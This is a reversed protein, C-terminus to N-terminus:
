AAQGEKSAWRFTSADRWMRHLIVALKRAVAVSQTAPAILCYPGTFLDRPNRKGEFGAAIAEPQRTPQTRTPYLRM